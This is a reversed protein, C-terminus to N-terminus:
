GGAVAPPVSKWGITDRTPPNIRQLKFDDYWVTGFIPCFQGADCSARSFSVVIGESKPKTKFDFTIRQWDNTGAPLPQSIALAANDAADLITILPTGASNLDDTRAYCEFRYT